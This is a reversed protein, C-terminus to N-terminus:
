CWGARAERWRELSGFNGAIAEALTGSPDGGGGEGLSDFYVEHLLMSNTAILEERKLGNLRFGPLAAPDNAALEDAIANLRRVAGGYNNEYHSVILKESMGKVHKPDCGLPKMAYPM